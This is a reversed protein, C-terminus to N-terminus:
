GAKLRSSSFRRVVSSQVAANIAAVKEKAFSNFIELPLITAAPSRARLEKLFTACTTAFVDMPVKNEPKSADNTGVANTPRIIGSPACPRGTTSTGLPIPLEAHAQPPSVDLDLM